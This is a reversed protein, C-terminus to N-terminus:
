GAISVRLLHDAAREVRVGSLDPIWVPAALEEHPITTGVGVVAMGAALGAQVGAPADELVLCREPTVGLKRAALLYCEPDPKGRQVDESSVLVRPIPLGCWEIRVLAVNRTASTVVAWRDGPLQRLLAAAGRVELIGERDEEEAALMAAAEAEADLHPAVARITEETRCGHSIAMIHDFDMGHRDSWRRWHRRVCATSDVITGDMDVLLAECLFTHQVLTVTM